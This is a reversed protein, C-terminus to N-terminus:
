CSRGHLDLMACDFCQIHNRAQHLEVVQTTGCRCRVILAKRQYGSGLGVKTVGIVTRRGIRTGVLSLLDDTTRQRKHRRRQREQIKAIRDSPM